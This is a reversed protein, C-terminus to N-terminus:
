ATVGDSAELELAYWPVPEETAGDILRGAFRATGAHEAADVPARRATSDAPALTPAGESATGASPPAPAGASMAGGPSTEVEDRVARSRLWLALLALALLALGVVRRMPSGPGERLM